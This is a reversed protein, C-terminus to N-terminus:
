YGLEVAKELVKGALPAAYSGGAGAHELVVAIAIPHTDSYIFGTFWAHPKSDEEDSVEATGTKGGVELGKVRASRGTGSEVTQIMMERLKEAQDRELPRKLEEAEMKIYEIERSNMVSKLLKPEMMIGDNAVSSSIMCMLLPTVLDKYQGVASWAFDLSDVDAMEYSSSYTMLDDFVFDENFGFSEATKKLNDPGIEKAMQAFAVNCSNAFAEEFTQRGHRANNYCVVRGNGIKLPGSCTFTEELLEPAYKMAAAATVIKFVSGPTYRGMTARNVLEGPSDSKEEANQNQQEELYSRVNANDYGPKSVSALIEGTQYNMVVVAGDYSDMQEYIYKCLESDVTLVVNDGHRKDLTFAQYLRELFNGGFGLLYKAHYSEVGAAAIGYPDGITHCLARRIEADSIYQREGEENSYALVTYNRDLISGAIVNSKQQTLRPNYPSVFWQTGNVTVTYGIYSALVVFLLIFAILLNRINHRTGKM